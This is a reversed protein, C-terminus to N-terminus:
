TRGMGSGTGRKKDGKERGGLDRGDDVEQSYKTGGELFSQLM